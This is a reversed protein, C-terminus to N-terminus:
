SGLPPAAGGARDSPGEAKPSRPAQSKGPPRTSGPEEPPPRAPQQADPCTLLPPRGFRERLRNIGQFIAPRCIIRREMRRKGPVDLLMVGVLITLLGQGPIGPLSLVIGVLILLLGLLNKGLAQLGRQWRPRGDPAPTHDERLFYDVPLRCLVAGAVAASGFLSVLFISIGGAIEATTVHAAGLAMAAIEPCISGM